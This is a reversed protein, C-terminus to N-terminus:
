NIGFDVGLVRRLFYAANGNGNMGNLPVSLFIVKPNISADKIAISIKTTDYPTNYPLKYILSAGLKYYIGRVRDLQGGGIQLVPYSNNYVITEDGTNPTTIVFNTLSDVPAFNIVNGQSSIDDPFGTTFFVKGGAVVYFPLSQQALDFNTNNVSAPGSVRGGFWIVCQFLKLTEIFMPNVIKPLNGGGNIKINLYSYQSFPLTDNLANRYFQVAQSNGTTIPFDNILLINGVKARVYWYDTSDPMIIAPSYVGAIDKAKLYFKNNANSVIGDSARLTISTSTGSIENWSSTDNLAWYYNRITNDGDPDTGTWVFTAVPFSTDPIETGANFRVSPASNVVPFLNTAPSPDINGKDDIARAWFRFTSDNGIIVLQFTSDNNPTYSWNLSDFSVEFGKVLGDPDDGWWTIKLRTKQPSIISDPFISLYTEPASNTLVGEPVDTCGILVVALIIFSLIHKLRNM